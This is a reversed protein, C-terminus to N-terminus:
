TSYKRRLTYVFLFGLTTLLGGFFTYLIVIRSRKPKFKEEAVMAKSVTSFAYEPRAIALM